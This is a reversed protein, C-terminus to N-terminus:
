KHSAVGGIEGADGIEVAQCAEYVRACRHLSEKRSRDGEYFSLAFLQLAVKIHAARFQEERSPHNENLARGFQHQHAHQGLLGTELQPLM